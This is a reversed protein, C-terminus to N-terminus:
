SEELLNNLLNKLNTETFRGLNYLKKLEELLDKEINSIKDIDKNFFEDLFDKGSKINKM